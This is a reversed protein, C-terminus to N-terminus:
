RQWKGSKSLDTSTPFSFFLFHLEALKLLIKTSIKPSLCHITQMVFRRHLAPKMSAGFGQHAARKLFLISRTSYLNHLDIQQWEQRRSDSDPNAPDWLESEALRLDPFLASANTASQRSCYRAGSSRTTRTLGHGSSAKGETSRVRRYNSRSRRM